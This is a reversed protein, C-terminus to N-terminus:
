EMGNLFACIKKFVPGADSVGSKGGEILVVIVYRPNEVPFFGGFWVNGTESTGTKGAVDLGSLGLAYGTGGDLFTKAMMSQVRKAVTKDLVRVALSAPNSKEMVGEGDYADKVLRPSRLMGGSAVCSIMKALNLPTTMVGQEGLAINGLVAEGSGEIKLGSMDSLAYGILDDNGLEWKAFAKEIKERGLAQAVHIFVPNCSKAIADDFVILGHGRENWCSITAGNSLTYAGNCYFMSEPQVIGEELAVSALFVKFLSAAPYASLARNVYADETPPPTIYYPDYKPSSALALVDGSEVDLVVAAGTQEGLADEMARQLDLDITTTIYGSNEEPEDFILYEGGFVARNRDDVVIGMSQGGGGHLISEYRYELGSVGVTDGVEYREDYKETAVDEASVTGLSGILHLAPLDPHYRGIQGLVFLGEDNLEDLSAIEEGTLGTKAVFPTYRISTGEKNTGAIKKLLNDGDIGIIDGVAGAVAEPEKVLSPFILLSPAEESNTIEVGNRDLIAGRPYQQLEVKRLKQSDGLAALEPGEILQLWALRGLLAAGMVSFFVVMFIFRKSKKM